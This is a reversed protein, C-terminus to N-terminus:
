WLKRQITKDDMAGTFPKDMHCLNAHIVNVDTHNNKHIDNIILVTSQLAVLSHFVSIVCGLLSFSKVRREVRCEKKEKSALETKCFLLPGLQNPEPLSQIKKVINGPINTLDIM